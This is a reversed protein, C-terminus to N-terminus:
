APALFAEIHRAVEKPRDHHLNHSTDALKECRVNKMLAARAALGGPESDIRSKRASALWLTPATVCRICAAWEAKSHLTAFPGRHRPDFSWELKGDATRRSSEAALYLAKDFSLRENTQRLRAAMEELTDYPRSPEPGNRWDNLWRALHAPATNVDDDVLGFADLAILQSVRQPRVGAYIGAVQGGLSHGGLAVPAGPSLQDLLAELDALYDQFWYGAANWGSRGYGRLDPAIVRFQRSFADVVFQFTASSDRSGHLLVLLPAAPPGWSRLHIELGRLVVFNSSPDIRPRYATM